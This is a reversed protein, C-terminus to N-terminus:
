VARVWRPRPRFPRVLFVGALFGGIHAGYAVGGIQAGLMGASSVLQFAFWLGIAVVAPVELIAFIWLIKVRKRPFLVIYAGLVGSIAGSAGLTPLLPNGGTLVTAFVHSLGAACGCVLYFILYRVHGLADEVNDGFIVLYLMNGLIHALGGHLFMSTILTLFIPIPTPGLEIQARRGEGDELVVPRDIDRGTLIEGPVLAYSLTVRANTGFGQVFVFVFVNAAVLLWNVIPSTRRDSNDDGIPIV